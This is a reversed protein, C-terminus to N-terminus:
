TTKKKKSYRSEDAKKYEHELQEMTTIKELEENYRRIAARVIVTDSFAEKIVLKRRCGALADLTKPDLRFHYMLGSNKEIQKM